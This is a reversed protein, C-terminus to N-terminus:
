FNTVLISSLVWVARSADNVPADEPETWDHVILRDSAHLASIVREMAVELADYAGSETEHGAYVEVGAAYRMVGNMNEGAASKIIVFPASSPIAGARDVITEGALATRIDQRLTM